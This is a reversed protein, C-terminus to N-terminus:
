RHGNSAAELSLLHQAVAARAEPYPGLAALVTSRVTVWEPAVLVNVTPGDDLEGLLTGILDM